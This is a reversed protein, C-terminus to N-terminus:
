VVPCNVNPGPKTPYGSAEVDAKSKLTNPVYDDPWMVFTIKWLPPYLGDWKEFITYQGKLMGQENMFAWGPLKWVKGSDVNVLEPMVVTGYGAETAEFVAYEVENGKYWGEQLPHQGNDELLTSGSPVMPMNIAVRTKETRLANAKIESVSKLANAKYDNPVFVRHIIRFDSYGADSETVEEFIGAEVEGFVPYQGEVPLGNEHFFYYVPAAQDSTPGFNYYKIVASAGKWANFKPFDMAPTPTLEAFSQTKLVSQAPAAPPTPAPAPAKVPVAEGSGQSPQTCGAISVMLLLGIAFLFKENM